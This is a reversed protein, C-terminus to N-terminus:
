FALKAGVGLVVVHAKDLQGSVLIPTQVPTGAFAASPRDITADKVTIYNLAADLTLAESVKYGAGAAFNWRDGDPVRTDRSGDRTPTQDHQVGGRLTLAPSLAYDVGGAISWTDRYNQPLAANIPAGLRIADFKKWGLRIIQANLTLTESAKFRAGGIIQWPTRFTAQANIVGNNNALPVGPVSILGATTISGDLKHKVSSKYSLGLTAVGLRAQGGVSFGFDWGKGRLSQHGDPLLPSLNPLSNSLGASVHEANLAVGISIADSPAFAISPQIDFTRLKSKDSTYRAWSVGKYNTTFSFPSTIALGLSLQPTLAFAAAGTPLYGNNIPDKSVQEAGGVAAPAQGPRVIRTNVNSVNGKPLIASFGVFAEVGTMGGTAAPNWWLSDVGRDAVEGSFARGAGRISQEQLYFAGAHASTALTAGLIPAAALLATRISLKTM